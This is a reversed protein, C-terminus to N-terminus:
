YTASCQTCMGQGDVSPLFGVQAAEAMEKKVQLVAQLGPSDSEEGSSSLMEWDDHSSPPPPHSSHSPSPPATLSPDPTHSTGSPGAVPLPAPDLALKRGEAVVKVWAEFFSPPWRFIASGQVPHQWFKPSNPCLPWANDTKTNLEVFQAWVIDWGDMRVNPHFYMHDAWEELPLPVDEGKPVEWVLLRRVARPRLCSFHRLELKFTKKIGDLDKASKFYATVRKPFFAAVTLEDDLFTRKGKFAVM